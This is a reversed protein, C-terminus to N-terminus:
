YDKKHKIFWDIIDPKIQTIRPYSSDHHEKLYQRVLMLAIGLRNQGRWNKPDQILPNDQHLGVGWVTDVPSAEVITSDNTVILNILIARNQSFKFLNGKFVILDKEQDWISPNFNKIQRGFGKQDKPNSSSMINRHCEIDNFLLAKQAMMYQEACNYNVM